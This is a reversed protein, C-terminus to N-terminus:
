KHICLSVNIWNQFLLFNNFLVQFKTELSIYYFIDKL